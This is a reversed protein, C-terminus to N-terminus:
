PASTTSLIPVLPSSIPWKGTEVSGLDDWEGILKAAQQTAALIAGHPTMGVEVMLAFEGANEGHPAGPTDSGFAIKM